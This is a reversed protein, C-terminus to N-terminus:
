LQVSVQWNLSKARKLLEPVSSMFVTGTIKNILAVKHRTKLQEAASLEGETFAFFIDQFTM